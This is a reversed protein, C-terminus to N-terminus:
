RDPPLAPRPAFHMQAQPVRGNWTDVAAQVQQGAALGGGDALRNIRSIVGHSWQDAVDGIRASDHSVTAAAIGVDELTRLAAIGAQDKGVGADNFIVLSLPVRSAYEGSSAGGHSACVVIAGTDKDTLFSISDYLVVQTGAATVATDHNLM